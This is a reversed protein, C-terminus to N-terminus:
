LTASVQLLLCDIERVFIKFFILAKCDVFDCGLQFKILDATVIDVLLDRKLANNLLKNRTFASNTFDAM